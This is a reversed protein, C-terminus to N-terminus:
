PSPADVFIGSGILLRVSFRIWQVEALAISEADKM